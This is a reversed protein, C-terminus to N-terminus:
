RRGRSAVLDVRGGKKLRTGARPRQSIVRGRKVRASYSLRVHGVGCHHALIAHRAAALTENKVAPVLCHVSPAIRQTLVSSTYRPNAIRRSFTGRFDAGSEALLRQDDDNVNALYNVQGDYLYVARSPDWAIAHDPRSNYNFYSIAKIDPHSEFYDFM